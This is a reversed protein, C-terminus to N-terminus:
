GRRRERRERSPAGALAPRVLPEVAVPPGRQEPQGRERGRRELAGLRQLLQARELVPDPDAAHRRHVRAEADVRGLVERPGLRQESSPEWSQLSSTLQPMVEGLQLRGPRRPPHPPHVRRRARVEGHPAGKGPHRHLEGPELDYAKGNVTFQAKGSIVVRTSPPRTGTCPSPTAPRSSPTASTRARGSRQRDALGDRGAPDGAGQACGVECGERPRRASRGDGAAQQRRRPRARRPARRAALPSASPHMPEEQMVTLSASAAGSGAGVALSSADPADCFVCHPRLGQSPAATVRGPCRPCSARRVEARRTAGSRRRALARVGPPVVAASGDAGEPFLPRARPRAPKRLRWAKWLLSLALWGLM